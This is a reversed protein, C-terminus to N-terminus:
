DVVRRYRCRYNSRLHNFLHNFIMFSIDVAIDVCDRAHVMLTMTNFVPGNGKVLRSGGTSAGIIQSSLHNFILSIYVSIDVCDHAHVM